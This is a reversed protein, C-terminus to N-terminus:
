SRNTQVQLFFLLTDTANDPIHIMRGIKMINGWEDETAM